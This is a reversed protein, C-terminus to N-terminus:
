RRREAEGLSRPFVLSAICGQHTPQLAKNARLM